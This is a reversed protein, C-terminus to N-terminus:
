EPYGEHQTYITSDTSSSTAASNSTEACSTNRMHFSCKEDLMTSATSYMDHKRCCATTSLQWVRAGASGPLPEHANFLVKEDLMRWPRLTEPFFCPRLTTHIKNAPHKVHIDAWLLFTNAKGERKCIHEAARQARNEKHALKQHLRRLRAAARQRCPLLEKTLRRTVPSPYHLVISSSFVLLSARFLFPM